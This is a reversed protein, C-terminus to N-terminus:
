WIRLVIGSRTLLVLAPSFSTKRVQVSRKNKLWNKLDNKLRDAAMALMGEDVDYLITKFGAGAAVQAIGSGMTGAGCICITTM